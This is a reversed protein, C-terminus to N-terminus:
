CFAAVMFSTDRLLGADTRFTVEAQDANGSSLDVLPVVNAAGAPNASPDGFGASVQVVCHALNRDFTLIYSDQGPRDNVATVGSGYEVTATTDGDLDRIYAFLKTADQGAQGREGQPGREGAPRWRLCSTPL